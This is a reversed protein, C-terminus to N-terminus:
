TWRFTFYLHARETVFQDATRKVTLKAIERPCFILKECKKYRGWPLQTTKLCVHDLTTKHLLIDLNNEDLAKGKGVFSFPCYPSHVKWFNLWQRLLIEVSCLFLILWVFRNLGLAFNKAFLPNSCFHYLHTKLFRPYPFMDGLLVQGERPSPPWFSLYIYM